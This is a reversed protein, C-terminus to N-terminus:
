NRANIKGGGDMQSILRQFKLKIEIHRLPTRIAGIRFGFVRNLTKTHSNAAQMSAKTEKDTVAGGIIQGHKNREQPYHYRRGRNFDESFQLWSQKPTKM